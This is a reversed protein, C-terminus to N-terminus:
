QSLVSGGHIPDSPLRQRKSRNKANKTAVELLFERFDPAMIFMWGPQSVVVGHEALFRFAKKVNYDTASKVGNQRLWIALHVYNHAKDPQFMMLRILPIALGNPVVRSDLAAIAIEKIRIDSRDLKPREKLASM